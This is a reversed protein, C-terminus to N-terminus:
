MSVCLCVCLCVSVCVCVCVCLCLCLCLCVCVCVCVCLCVCVSVCVCVCVRVCVRVRVPACVRAQSGPVNDNLALAISGLNNVLVFGAGDMTFAVAQMYWFERTRLAGRWTVSSDAHLAGAAASAVTAAAAAGTAAPTGAISAELEVAAATLTRARHRSVTGSSEGPHPLHGLRLARPGDLLLARMLPSTGAGLRPMRCGGCARAVAVHVAHTDVGLLGVGSALALQADAFGAAAVADWAAANAIGVAVVYCALASVLTYGFFLRHLGAPALQVCMPPHHTDPHSPLPLM